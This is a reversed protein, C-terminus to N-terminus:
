GSHQTQRVMQRKKTGHINGVKSERKGEAFLRISGTNHSNFNRPGDTAKSNLPIQKTM